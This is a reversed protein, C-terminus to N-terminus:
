VEQSKATSQPGPTGLGSARSPAKVTLLSPTEAHQDRTKEAECGGYGQRREGRRPTLLVLFHAHAEDLLKLIDLDLFLKDGQADEVRRRSL